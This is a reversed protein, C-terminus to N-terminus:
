RITPISAQPSYLSFDIILLIFLYLFIHPRFCMVQLYKEVKKVHSLIQVISELVDHVSLFWVLLFVTLYTLSSPFHFMLLVFDVLCFSFFLFISFLILFLTLFAFSFLFLILLDFCLFLSLPFFFLQVLFFIMVLADLQSRYLFCLLMPGMTNCLTTTIM